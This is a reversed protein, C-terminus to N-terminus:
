LNPILMGPALMCASQLLCQQLVIANAHGVLVDGAQQAPHERPGLVPHLLRAALEAQAGLHREDPGLHAGPQRDLNGAGARALAELGVVLQVNVDM